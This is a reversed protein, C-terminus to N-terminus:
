LSGDEPTIQQRLFLAMQEQQYIGADVFLRHREDASPLLSLLSPLADSAPQCATKLRTVSRSLRPTADPTDPTSGDSTSPM